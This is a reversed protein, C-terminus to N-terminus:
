VSQSTITHVNQFLEPIAVDLRRFAVSRGTLLVLFQEPQDAPVLILQKSGHGILLLVQFDYNFIIQTDLNFKILPRLTELISRSVKNCIALLFIPALVDNCAHLSDLPDPYLTAKGFTDVLYDGDDSPGKLPLHRDYFIGAPM